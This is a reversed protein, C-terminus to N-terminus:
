LHRENEASVDPLLTTSSSSRWNVFEKPVGKWTCCIISGEFISLFLWHFILSMVFGPEEFYDEATFRETFFLADLLSPWSRRKHQKSQLLGTGFSKESMGDKPDLITWRLPHSFVLNFFSVSAMGSLYIRVRKKEQNNSLDIQSSNRESDKSLTKVVQISFSQFTFCSGQSIWTNHLTAYPIRM